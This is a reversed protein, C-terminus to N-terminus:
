VHSESGEEPGKRKRGQLGNSEKADRERREKFTTEFIRSQTVLQSFNTIQLYCIAERIELRLGNEYFTCLEEDTGNQRHHPWYQLLENFKSTYEGVSMDGQKLDLFERAKRKRLDVPFYNELFKERFTEWIVFGEEASLSPKIFKWWNKAEGVLMFTAFTVKQEARCGMATFINEIEELWLKAGEADFNGCFKLPKNSQFTMLGKYEAPEQGQNTNMNELVTTMRELLVDHNTGRGRGAM